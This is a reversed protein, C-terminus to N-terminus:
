KILKLRGFGFKNDKGVAGLDKARKEIISQIEELMYPTKNRILSLAGAVHPASASTGYFGLYGYTSCSIGSPASIDPKIRKDSTPGRSSYSHYSDDFCDTAGVAIAHHSDAPILLSGFPNNHELRYVNSFFLELTCNRSAYYKHVCIYRWGSSGAIFSIWEIPLSGSAQNNVSKGYLEYYPPPGYLYLDYDNGQSNLYSNGNWDGWDDWNLDVSYVDGKYVYFAFWESEEEGPKEFNCWNDSDQDRFKGEWHQDAENGASSVWLIGKDHAKNVDECIWGSGDAAGMGTWGISYSIINVGQNVIWDVANHHEVDTNFNVLLLKSEPAMDHIIEACATGHEHSKLNGDRRFSRTVVSDPLETGLLDEYGGFGADLICIKTEGTSRYSPMSQWQDAGTKKVGESLECIIPRKPLRLYKISQLDSLDPVVYIPLKTQILHNYTTEVVGGLTEIQEIVVNMRHEAETKKGRIKGEAVVTVLDGDTEIARRKAYAIAEKKGKKQYVQILQYLSSEIKPHTKREGLLPITSETPELLDDHYDQLRAKEPLFIFTALGLSISILFIRNLSFKIKMM